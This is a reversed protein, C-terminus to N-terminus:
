GVDSFIDRNVPGLATVAMRSDDLIRNAVELISSGSIRNIKNILQKTTQYRANILEQRAIRSMRGSTSEMGLILHGKLQAKIQELLSGSIKRKRALKLEKMILEFAQRLRQDDTGLYVGFLGNDRYHDNYTYVSYALGREERIKQFLVSSMGDGLYINLAQAALKMEDSYGVGPFGLCLHAQKNRIRVVKVDKERTREAAPEPEAPLDNFSFKDKVLQVLRNHSVSGCAAVVVAGNIYHRKYFDLLRPRTMGLIIKGDGMIPQGLPDKGWYTKSFLDHVRDTPNDFVEKIEECIVLAERKMHATKFTANCTLDALVDVAEFLYEDLVRAVYCTHERSTFGNLSGGLSELSAAIQRVNRKGTGKFVMHEIFHSLGNENPKENRSGVDIWIGISISRVSPIKETIVRLGNKLVTKRFFGNKSSTRNM